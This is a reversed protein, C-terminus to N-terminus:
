SARLRSSCSWPAPSAPRRGDGSHRPPWGVPSFACCSLLVWSIMSVTFGLGHLNGHASVTEPLGAPAGEPFGNSPDLTFIGAIVQGAGLAALLIAAPVGLRGRVHARLATAAIINLLGMVVFNAQQLPGTTGISLYSFAHRILDLDPNFPMQAFSVALFLPQALVGALLRRSRQLRRLPAHPITSVHPTSPTPTRM